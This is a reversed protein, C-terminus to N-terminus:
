GEEAELDPPAFLAKTTTPAKPAKPAPIFTQEETENTSDDEIGKTEDQDMSIGATAELDRLSMTKLVRGNIALVRSTKDLLLEPKAMVADLAELELVEEEENYETDIPNVSAASGGMSVRGVTGASKAMVAIIALLEKTDHVYEIKTSLKQLASHQIDTFLDGIENEKTRQEILEARVKGILEVGEPEQFWRSLTSEDIGLALASHRASVGQKLLKELKEQQTLALAIHAM